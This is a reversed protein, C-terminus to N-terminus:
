VQTKWAITESAWAFTSHYGLCARDGTTHHFAHYICRRDSFKMCGWKVLSDIFWFSSPRNTCSAGWRIQPRRKPLEGDIIYNSSHYYINSAILFIFSLIFYICSVEQSWITLSTTANNIWKSNSIIEDSCQPMHAARQRHTLALARGDHESTWDLVGGMNM